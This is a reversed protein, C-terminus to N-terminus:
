PSCYAVDEPDTCQKTKPDCVTGDPCAFVYPDHQPFACIYFSHCDRFIPQGLEENNCDVDLYFCFNTDFIYM